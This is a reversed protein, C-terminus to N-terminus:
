FLSARLDLVGNPERVVFADGRPEAQFIVNFTDQSYWHNDYASHRGNVVVRGYCGATLTFADRKERRPPQGMTPQWRFGVQVGDPVLELLLAHDRERYSEQTLVRDHERAFGTEERFRVSHFVWPAGAGLNFPVASAVANRRVANPAGRSAKTWVVRIHQVLVVFVGRLEPHVFM